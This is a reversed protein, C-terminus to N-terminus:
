VRASAQGQRTKRKILSCTSIKEVLAEAFGGGGAHEEDVPRIGEPLGEDIRKSLGM